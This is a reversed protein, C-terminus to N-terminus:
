AIQTIAGCAILRGLTDFGIMSQDFGCSSEIRVGIDELARSNTQRTSVKLTEGKAVPGLGEGIMLGGGIM